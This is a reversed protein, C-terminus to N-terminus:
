HSFILKISLLFLVGGFGHRLATDSIFQALYSGGLIGLSLGLSMILAPKVAVHGNRYYILAGLLTVPPVMAALYTGQAAHQSMGSILVLVPILIFGGALGVLGSLLGSCVGFILFVWLNTM